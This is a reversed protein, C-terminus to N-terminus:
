RALVGALGGAMIRRVVQGALWDNGRANLHADRPWTLDRARPGMKVLVPTLDLYPVRLKDLIGRIRRVPRTYDLRKLIRNLGPVLADNRGQHEAYVRRHPLIVVLLRAKNKKVLDRLRHLAETVPGTARAILDGQRAARWRRILDLGWPGRWLSWALVDDPAPRYVPAVVQWDGRFLRWFSDWRGDWAAVRKQWKRKVRLGALLDRQLNYLHFHKYWPLAFRAHQRAIYKRDPRVLKYGGPRPSLYPRGRGPLADTFDNSAFFLVIVLRHPLKRDVFARYVLWYHTPGYGQCGFNYGVVEKGLRGALDRVVLDTWREPRPVEQAAVFSDGLFIIARGGPAPRPEDDRFGLSNIKLDVVYERWHNTSRSRLGPKYTWGVRADAWVARPFKPWPHFLRVAVEAAALTLALAVLILGVEKLGFKRKRGRSM